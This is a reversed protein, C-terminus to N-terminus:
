KGPLTQDPDCNHDETPKWPLVIRVQRGRTPRTSSEGEASQQWVAASSGALCLGTALAACLAVVRLQSM